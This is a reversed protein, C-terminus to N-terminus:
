NIIDVEERSHRYYNDRDERIKIFRLCLEAKGRKSTQLYKVVLELLIKVSNREGISINYNTTELIADNNRPDRSPREQVFYKVGFRDLFKCVESILNLDNNYISIRPHYTYTVRKENSKVSQLIVSGEGDILGAMWGIQILTRTTEQENELLFSELMYAGKERFIKL